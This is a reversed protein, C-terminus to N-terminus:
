ALYEALPRPLAVSPTAREPPLAKMDAMARASLSAAAAIGALGQRSMTHNLEGFVGQGVISALLADPGPSGMAEAIEDDTLGGLRQDRLLDAVLDPGTRTGVDPGGTKVSFDLDGTAVGILNLGREDIVRNLTDRAFELQGEVWPLADEGGNDANVPGISFYGDGGDLTLRGGANPGVSEKAFMKMAVGAAFLAAAAYPAAAALSSVMGGSLATGAGAAGVAGGTAATPLAATGFGGLPGTLALAASSTPAAAAAGGMLVGTTSAGSFLGAAPGVAVGTSGAMPGLLNAGAWSAVSSTKGTVLNYAHTAGDIADGLGLGQQRSGPSAV